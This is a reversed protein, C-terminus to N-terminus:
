FSSYNNFYNSPKLNNDIDSFSELCTGEKCEGINGDNNKSKTWEIENYKVGPINLENIDKITSDLNDDATKQNYEIEKVNIGIQNLNFIAEKSILTNTSIDASTLEEDDDNLQIKHPSNVMSAKTKSDKINNRKVKKPKLGSLLKEGLSGLDGVFDTLSGALMYFTDTVATWASELGSYVDNIVSIAGDKVTDVTNLVAESADNYIGVAVDKADNILGTAQKVADNFTKQVAGKSVNYAETTANEIFSAAELAAEQAADIINTFAKKADDVWKQFVNLANGTFKILNFHETLREDNFSTLSNLNNNELLIMENVMGEINDLKKLIIKRNRNLLNHNLKEPNNRGDTISKTLKNCTLEFKNKKDESIVLNFKQKNYNSDMKKNIYM